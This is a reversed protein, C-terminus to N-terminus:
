VGTEVLTAELAEREVRGKGEEFGLGGVTGGWGRAGEREMVEGGGGQGEGKEGRHAM